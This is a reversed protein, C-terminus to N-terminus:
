HSSKEPDICDRLIWTMGTETEASNSDHKQENMEDSPKRRKWTPTMKESSLRCAAKNDDANTQM